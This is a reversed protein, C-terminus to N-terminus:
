SPRPGLLQSVRMEAKQAARLAISLAVVRAVIARQAVLAKRRGECDSCSDGCDAGGPFAEDLCDSCAARCSRGHADLVQGTVIAQSNDLTQGPVILYDIERRDFVRRTWETLQYSYRAQYSEISMYFIKGM